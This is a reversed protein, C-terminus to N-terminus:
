VELHVLRKNLDEISVVQTNIISSPLTSSDLSMSIELAASSQALKTTIADFSTRQLMDELPDTGTFGAMAKSAEKLELAIQWEDQAKAIDERFIQLDGVAIELCHIQYALMKKMNEYMLEMDPVSASNKTRYQELKGKFVKTTGGFAIVTERFTTLKTQALQYQRVLNPIPNKKADDTLANIKWSSMKRALVPAANVAVITVTAAAMIAIVSTLVLAAISGAIVIFGIGAVWKLGIELKKKDM